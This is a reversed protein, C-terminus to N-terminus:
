STNGSMMTANTMEIGENKNLRPPPIPGGNPLVGSWPRANQQLNQQIGVM